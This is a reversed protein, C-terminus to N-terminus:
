IGKSNQSCIKQCKKKESHGKEEKQRKSEEYIITIEARPNDRDVGGFYLKIDDCVFWNDDVIFDNDVLLDMLSEAKNTLDSRRRDPAYIIIEVECKEIPKKPRFKKIRYSQEEHWVKHNESPIVIVRNGRAFVRKSNKKSPIRGRIIIRIRGM